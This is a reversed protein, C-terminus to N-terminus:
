HDTTPEGKSVIAMGCEPCREKSARLDYGCTPCLGLRVSRRRRMLRWGTRGVDYGLPLSSLVQLFWMPLYVDHSTYAPFQQLGRAISPSSVCKRWVFGCKEWWPRNYHYIEAGVETGEDTWGRMREGTAARLIQRYTVFPVSVKCWETTNEDPYLGVRYPDCYELREWGPATFDTIQLCARGDVFALLWAHRRTLLLRPYSITPIAFYWSDLWLLAIGLPLAWRLFVCMCRFAVRLVMRAVM